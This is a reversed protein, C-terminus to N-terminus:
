YDNEPPPYAKFALSQAVTSIAMKIRRWGLSSRLSIGNFVESKRSRLVLYYIASTFISFIAEYDFREIQNEDSFRNYVKLGEIERIAAIEQTIPNNESLEWLLFEQLEPNRLLHDLQEFCITEFQKVFGEATKASSVGEFKKHLQIFFDKEIVYTKILENISGFYRYILVKDVGAARAVSNVGAKHFGEEKIVKGVSNILRQRTAEKNRKIVAM